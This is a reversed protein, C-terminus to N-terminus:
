KEKEFIADDITGELTLKRIQELLDDDYSSSDYTQTTDTYDSTHTSRETEEDVSLFFNLIEKFYTNQPANEESDRKDLLKKANATIGVLDEIIPFYHSLQNELIYSVLVLIEPHIIRFFIIKIFCNDQPVEMTEYIHSIKKNLYSSLLVLSKTRLEHSRSLVAALNKLFLLTIHALRRRNQKKNESPLENYHFIAELACTTFIGCKSFVCELQQKIDECFLAIGPLSKGILIIEELDKAVSESHKLTSMASDISRNIMRCIFPRVKSESINEALEIILSACSILDPLEEQLYSFMTDFDKKHKLSKLQSTLEKQLQMNELRNQKHKRAYIAGYLTDLERTLMIIILTRTSICDEGEIKISPFKLSKNEEELPSEELPPLESYNGDIIQPHSQQEESTPPQLLIRPLDSYNEDVIPDEKLPKKVRTMGSDISYGRQLMPPPPDKENSKKPLFPFSFKRKEKTSIDSEKEKDDSDKRSFMRGILSGARKKRPHHGELAKKSADETEQTVDRLSSSQVPRKTKKKQSIQSHQNGRPSLGFNSITAQDRDDSTSSAGFTITPVQQM